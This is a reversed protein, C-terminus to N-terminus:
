RHKISNNTKTTKLKKMYKPYGSKGSIHNLMKGIEANKNGKRSLIREHVYTKFNSTWNINKKQQKHM